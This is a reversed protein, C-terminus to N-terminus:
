KKIIKIKEENKNILSSIIKEENIIFIFFFSFSLYFENLCPLSRTFFNLYYHTKNNRKSTGLKPLSQCFPSLTM